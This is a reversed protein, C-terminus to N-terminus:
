RKEKRQRLSQEFRVAEELSILGDGDADIRRFLADSGLFEARSVDGDRNRDMRQFWVPGKGTPPAPGANVGLAEYVAFPDQGRNTGAGQEVRLLYSHPIEAEGLAGDGDRDLEDVLRPLAHIERLSLRGDRDADFLDFLGRGSDAFHVSACSTTARTQLGEVTELYAIVDKEYVKGDGDRDLTKFIRGFGSMNAEKEDIYGNNDRDAATFQATVIQRLFAGLQSRPKSAGVRVALREKGVTFVITDPATRVTVGPAPKGGVLEVAPEGAGREGLRVRLVMDPARPLLRALEEADLKGDGDRDLRAFTAADLGIDERTLTKKAGGYRTLLRRALDRPSQSPSALFVPTNDPPQKQPGSEVYSRVAFLVNLQGTGPLLEQQTIIEDEDLDLRRFAQPAAALEARALKGDGDKDLLKMLAKNLDATGPKPQQFPNRMVPGGQPREPGAHLTFPPQGSTRMYEAFEAKTVKGDGNADMKARNGNNMGPGGFFFLNNGFSAPDPAAEAEARSLVGDGDTDAYKFVYDVFEEWATQLPKGDARIEFRVVLPGSGSLFVVDQPGPRTDPPAAPKADGGPPQAAAFSWAAALALLVASVIPTKM